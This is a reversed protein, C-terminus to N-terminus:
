LLVETPPLAKARRVSEPSAISATKWYMKMSNQMSKFLLQQPYYILCDSSVLSSCRVLDTRHETTERAWEIELDLIHRPLNGYYADKNSPTVGEAPKNQVPAGLFLHLDILYCMEEPAVLSYAVGSRGNRATRGVRLM